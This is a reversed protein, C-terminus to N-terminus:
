SGPTRTPGCRLVLPPENAATDAQEPPKLPRKEAQEAVATDRIDKATDPDTVLSRSRAVSASTNGTGADRGATGCAASAPSASLALVVPVLLLLRDAGFM